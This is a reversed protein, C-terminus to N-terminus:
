PMMGQILNMLTNVINDIIINNFAPVLGITFVLLIFLIIMKLPLGIVFMNMQPVTRALVGLGCDIIFLVALVPIALKFSVLWYNAVAEVITGVVNPRFIVANIPILEFSEILTKIFWHYGGSVIFIVSFGLAYFRGIIPVQEGSSPDFMMSMGLGGQTGLLMGVFYYVQFFIRIGFGLIIGIICEKVIVVMFSVLTPQYVLDTTGLTAMTIYTLCTCLGGLALPPVKAEEIIPLFALAFVIRCFIVLFLDVHTYLDMLEQM